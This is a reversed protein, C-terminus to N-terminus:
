ATQNYIVPMRSSPTAVPHDTGTVGTDTRNDRGLAFEKPTRGILVADGDVLGLQRPAL